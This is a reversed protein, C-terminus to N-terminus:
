VVILSDGANRINMVEYQLDDYVTLEDGNSFVFTVENDGARVTSFTSKLLGVTEAALEPEKGSSTLERGTSHNRYRFRGEIQLGGSGWNLQLDYSGIAVQCIEKELVVNFTDSPKIGYM